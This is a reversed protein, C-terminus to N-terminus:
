TCRRSKLFGAETESTLVTRSYRAVECPLANWFEGGYNDLVYQLFQEYYDAPYEQIGMEGNGFHMYDPHTNILAMGGHEAIWDLKRKWIDIERQEMLVFLTFDQALTYPLEVYPGGGSKRNVLFPFITEAPEPQPEFPDTDFTSCDYEIDLEGIWELNHLMAAARFGESNWEKLFHNIVPARERFIRYSSFLKGDHDYDHVGIEFGKEVLKRRLEASVNYRLPVLNFASRFGLREEMGALSSCKEQGFFSEVDHTLVLSFRKNEPWGYWNGPVKAAKQLIPWRDACRLRKRAVMERRLQIQVARPVLPKVYYYLKRALM